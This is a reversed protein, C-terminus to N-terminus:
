LQGPNLPRGSLGLDCGSRPATPWEAVAAVCITGYVAGSPVKGTAHGFSNFGLWTGKVDYFDIFAVVGGRHSVEFSSGAAVDVRAALPSHIGPKDFLLNYDVCDSNEGSQQTNPESVVGPPAM